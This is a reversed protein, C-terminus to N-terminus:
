PGSLLMQMQECTQAANYHRERTNCSSCYFSVKSGTHVCCPLESHSQRAVGFHSQMQSETIALKHSVETSRGERVLSVM